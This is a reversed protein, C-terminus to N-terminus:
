EKKVGEEGEKQGGDAKKESEDNKDGNVLEGCKAELVKLLADRDEPKAMLRFNNLRREAGEEAVNICSFQM